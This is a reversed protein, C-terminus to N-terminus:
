SNVTQGRAPRRPRVQTVFFGRTAIIGADFPFRRDSRRREQATLRRTARRQRSRRDYLVVTDPRRAFERRLRDFLRQDGARVIIFRKTERVMREEHLM